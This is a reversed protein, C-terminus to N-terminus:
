GQVGDDKAHADEAGEDVAQEIEEECCVRHDELLDVAYGPPPRGGM